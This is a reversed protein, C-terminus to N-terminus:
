TLASIGAALAYKRRRRLIPLSKVSVRDVSPALQVFTADNVRAKTTLSTPRKAPFAPVLGVCVAIASQNRTEDSGITPSSSPTPPSPLTVVITEPGPDTTAFGEPVTGHPVVTVSSAKGLGPATKAPKLPSTTEVEFGRSTTTVRSRVIMALKTTSEVGGLTGWPRAADGTLESRMAGARCGDV